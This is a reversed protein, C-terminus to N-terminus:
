DDLPIGLRKVWARVIQRAGKVEPFPGESKMPVPSRSAFEASSIALGGPLIEGLEKESMAFKINPIGAWFAAATCMVCPEMVAYITCQGLFGRDFQEAANSVLLITDHLLPNKRTAAHNSEELVIEGDPGVLISAFGDDGRAFAEEALETARNLYDIDTRAAQAM